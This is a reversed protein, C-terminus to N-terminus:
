TEEYFLLFQQHNASIRTTVAFPLIGETTDYVWHRTDFFYSHPPPLFPLIDFLRIDDGHYRKNLKMSM